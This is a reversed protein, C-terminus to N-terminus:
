KKWYKTPVESVKHTCIIGGGRDVSTVMKVITVDYTNVDEM